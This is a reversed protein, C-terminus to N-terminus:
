DRAAAAFRPWLSLDLDPVLALLRRVDPLLEEVLVAVHEDSITVREGTSVNRTRTLEDEGLVHPPLGLFAYTRDLEGQPDRVCREYQLILVRERPFHRLVREIQPAYRSMAIAATVLRNRDALPEQEFTKGSKRWGRLAHGRGSLTRDIPDRLLVIAKSRPAAEALMPIVWPSSLYEPTKEGALAGDPRPFYREYAALDAATPWTDTLRDFFHLEPRQTEPQVVGPHAEILRFWWTTGAKQAGLIVFDPPGTHWGPPCPPPEPLADFPSPTGPDRVPGKRAAGKGARL